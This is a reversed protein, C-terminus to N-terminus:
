ATGQRQAEGGPADADQAPGHDGACEGSVHSHAERAPYGIPITPEGDDYRHEKIQLRVLIDIMRTNLAVSSAFRKGLGEYYAKAGSLLVSADGRGPVESEIFNLTAWDDGVGFHATCSKHKWQQQEMGMITITDRTILHKQQLLADLDFM